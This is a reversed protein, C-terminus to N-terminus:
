FEVGLGSLAGAMNQAVQPNAATMLSVANRLRDKAERWQTALTPHADMLVKKEKLAAEVERLEKALAKVTVAGTEVNKHETAEAVVETASDLLQIARRGLEDVPDLVETTEGADGAPAAGDVESTCACLGPLLFLLLAPPPLTPVRM